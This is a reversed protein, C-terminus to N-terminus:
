AKPMIISRLICPQGNSPCVDKRALQKDRPGTPGDSYKANGFLEKQRKDSKPYQQDGWKGQFYLWGTPYSTEDYATFTEPSPQYSYYAASYLPDWLKGQDTFDTLVGEFNGINLNPITHDHTGGIAYNAHSGNASYSYPRLGRKELVDYKFAEGNNHQSYWVYTPQGNVFRVMNHEWDGVHDGYNGIDIDLIPVRVIGGWNYSYFYMYFADLTGDGHDYTIVACTTGLTMNTSDPENGGLWGPNTTIDQKSTLYVSGGGLNNLANINATNLPSPAGNVTAFNVEPQTWM